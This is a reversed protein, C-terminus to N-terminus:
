CNYSSCIVGRRIGERAEGILEVRVDKLQCWTDYTYSPHPDYEDTVPSDINLDPHITKADLENSAAVVSSDYTDHNNNVIQSILYLNM